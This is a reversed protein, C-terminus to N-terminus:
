QGSVKFGAVLLGGVIVMGIFVKIFTNRTTKYINILDRLDQHQQYHEEPDIWFTHGKDEVKQILTEALRNMEDDSMETM